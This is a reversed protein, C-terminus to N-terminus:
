ASSFITIFYSSNHNIFSRDNKSLFVTITINYIIYM